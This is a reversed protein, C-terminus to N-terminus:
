VDCSKRIPGFKSDMWLPSGQRIDQLRSPWNSSPRPMLQQVEKNVMNPPRHEVAKQSYLYLKIAWM